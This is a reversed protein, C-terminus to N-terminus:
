SKEGLIQPPSQFTLGFGEWLAFCRSSNKFIVIKVRGLGASKPLNSFFCRGSYSTGPLHKLPFFLSNFLKNM